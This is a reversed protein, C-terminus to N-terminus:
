KVLPDNPPVIIDKLWPHPLALKLLSENTKNRNVIERFTTLERAWQTLLGVLACCLTLATIFVGSYLVARFEEIGIREVGPIEITRLALSAFLLLLGITTGTGFLTSYSPFSHDLNKM